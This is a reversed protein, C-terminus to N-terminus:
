SLLTYQFNIDSKFIIIIVIRNEPIDQLRLDPVAQINYKASIEWTVTNM